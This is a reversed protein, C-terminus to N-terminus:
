GGLLSWTAFTTAFGGVMFLATALWSSKAGLATGVIGHGSTCGGAIRSGYGILVGAGLLVPIKVLAASGFLGDFAGLALTPHRGAFLGAVVGGLVIGGLFRLRWSSRLSKDRDVACLEACGTSVGLQKNDLWLMLLVFGGIALGAAWFPWREVFLSLYVGSTRLASPLEESIVFMAMIVVFWAFFRQLAREPVRHSLASGALSGVVASAAVLGALKWDIAVHLAHGAFGAFSKMAIVVLSTAVATRMGMGGLLVLAPVILFGGGAGVLGTVIGVVLGHWLVRLHPLEKTGLRPAASPDSAEKSNGGRLMAVASALMLIAFGVLLLSGPVFSALRGGAFAGAMGAGGFVLATRFDVLGKRAYSVAAASSTVAVILLSTAIAHKADLGLGYVLIPVTLISGGGGLLGLAVGILLSLALALLM